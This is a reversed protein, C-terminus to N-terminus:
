ASVQLTSTASMSLKLSENNKTFLLIISKNEPKNCFFLPKLYTKDAIIVKFLHLLAILLYSISFM